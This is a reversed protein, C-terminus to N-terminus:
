RNALRLGRKDVIGKIINFKLSFLVEDVAAGKAAELEACKANAMLLETELSAVRAELCPKHPSCLLLANRLLHAFNELLISYM